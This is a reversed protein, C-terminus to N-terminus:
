ITLDSANKVPQENMENLSARIKAMQEEMEIQSLYFNYIQVTAFVLIALFAIHFWKRPSQIIINLYYLGLVFLLGGAVLKNTTDPKPNESQRTEDRSTM